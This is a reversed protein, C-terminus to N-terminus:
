LYLSAKASATNKPPTGKIYKKRSPSLNAGFLIANEIPRIKKGNAKERGKLFKLNKSDGLLTVNGSM